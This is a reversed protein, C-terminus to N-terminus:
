HYMKDGGKVGLSGAPAWGKGNLARPIGVPLKLSRMPELKPVQYM